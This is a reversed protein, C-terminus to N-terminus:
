QGYKFVHFYFQSHPVVMHIYHSAAYCASRIVCVCAHLWATANTHLRVCVAHRATRYLGALLGVFVADGGEQNRWNTQTEIIEGYLLLLLFSHHDRTQSLPSYVAATLVAHHQWADNNRQQTHRHQPKSVYHFSVCCSAAASCRIGVASRSVPDMRSLLGWVRLCSWVTVSEYRRNLFVRKHCMLVLRASVCRILLRHSDASSIWTQPNSTLDTNCNNSEAREDMCVWSDRTHTRTIPSQTPTHPQLKM